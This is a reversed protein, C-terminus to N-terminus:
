IGACLFCSGSFVVEDKICDCSLFNRSCVANSVFRLGFRKIGLASSFGGDRWAVEPSGPPGKGGGLEFAEPILCWITLARHCWCRYVPLRLQLPIRM